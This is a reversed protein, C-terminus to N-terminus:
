ITFASIVGKVAAAAHIRKVAPQPVVHEVVVRQGVARSELFGARHHNSVINDAEITLPIRQSVANIKGGYVGVQVDGAILCEVQILQGVAPPYQRCGDYAKTDGTREIQLDMQNAARWQVECTRGVVDDESYFIGEWAGDRVPLPARPASM